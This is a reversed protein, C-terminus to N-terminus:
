RRGDGQDLLFEDGHSSVYERDIPKVVLGLNQALIAFVTVSLVPAEVGGTTVQLRIPFRLIGTEVDYFNSRCADFIDKRCCFKPGDIASLPRDSVYRPSFKVSIDQSSSSQLFTEAVNSSLYSKLKSPFSVRIRHPLKAVNEVRVVQQYISGFTCVSFDLIEPEVILFHGVTEAM